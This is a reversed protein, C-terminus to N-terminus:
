QSVLKNNFAYIVLNVTNNSNTLKLLNTKYKEVTRESIYLHEGIKQNSYGKCILNLVEKERESLNPLKEKRKQESKDELMLKTIKMLLEHSYYNDGSMVKEIATKFETLKSNKLMYGHAGAELMKDFYEKDYYTTLAIIKVEPLLLLAKKTAAIGDRKPMNIDMFIIDVKKKELIKILEDGDSAEGVVRTHKIKKLLIKFGDRFIAHDDVVIINLTDM